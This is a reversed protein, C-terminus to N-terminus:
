KESWRASHARYEATMSEPDACLRIARLRIRDRRRDRRRRQTETLPWESAHCLPCCCTRIGTYHWERHCRSPGPIFALGDQLTPLDCVGDTHDHMEWYELDRHALKVWLPKTKDTRSM